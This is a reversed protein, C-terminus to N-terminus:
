ASLKGKILNWDFGLKAPLEIDNKLGHHQTDQITRIVRKYKPPFGESEVECRWVNTFFAGMYDGLQGPWALRYQIINTMADQEIKEHMTLIFNKRMVTIKAIFTRTALLFFQYIQRGDKLSPQQRNVEAMIVPALGTGSDIVVTEIDPNVSADAVLKDLRLYQASAPVPKGTEDVDLRDYGVPTVLNHNKCYRIPGGLNVDADIIYAKPFQCATTSKGSGPPGQLLLRIFEEKTSYNTIPQM